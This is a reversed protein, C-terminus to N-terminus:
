NSNINVYEEDIYIECINNGVANIIGKLRNRAIKANNKTKFVLLTGKPYCPHVGIFGEYKSIDNILKKHEKKLFMPLNPIAFTYCKVKKM